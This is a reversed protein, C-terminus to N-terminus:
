PRYSNCGWVKYNPIRPCFRLKRTWIDFIRPDRSCSVWGILHIITAAILVWPSKFILFLETSIVANAVLYGYTVGFLM